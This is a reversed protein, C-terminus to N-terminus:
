DAKATAPVPLEGRVIDALTIGEFLDRVSSQAALWIRELTAVTSSDDSAQPQPARPDPLPGDLAQLVHAITIQEPPAGLRFGGSPGRASRTLGKRRLEVLINELFKKPIGQDRAIDTSTISCGPPQAALVVLARLAYDAKASVQLKM